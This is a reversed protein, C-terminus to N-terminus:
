KNRDLYNKKEKKIWFFLDERSFWNVIHKELNIEIKKRSNNLFILIFQKIKLNNKLIFYFSFYIFVLLIELLSFSM